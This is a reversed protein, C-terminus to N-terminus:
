LKREWMKQMEARYDYSERGCRKCKLGYRMEANRHPGVRIVYRFSRYDHGLIICVFRMLLRKM